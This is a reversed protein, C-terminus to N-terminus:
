YTMMFSHGRDTLSVASNDRIYRAQIYLPFCRFCMRIEIHAWYIVKVFYILTDGCSKSLVASSDNFFYETFDHFVKRQARSKLSRM